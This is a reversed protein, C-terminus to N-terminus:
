KAPPKSGPGAPAVGGQLDRVVDRELEEQTTYKKLFLKAQAADQLEKFVIPIEQQIKKEIIEKELKPREAELKKGTDPPLRKVCRLVVSGQPTDILKSIEGPQLSFAEKELEDNGTTHRRIPEIAGGHMALSPTAQQRACREFDAESRRLEAYQQMAIRKQDPPYLIMRCDVKEGFYAEFADHLDKDTVHVRDQARCLKTLALKPRIVDEKWEFLSKNYRKLVKDVFEQLPLNGMSKLDEALAAEVEAASVEIGKAKCALEIIRKNVLLELQQSHRAILYEGFEERTIPINSNIVAVWRRAYDSSTDAPAPTPPNEPKANTGPPVAIAQPMSGYRGWWFALALLGLFGMKMTLKRWGQGNPRWSMRLHM